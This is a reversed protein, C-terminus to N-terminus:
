GEQAEESFRALRRITEGIEAATTSPNIACIRLAPRGHLATSMVLAYGDVRMLDVTRATIADIEAPSRTGDGRWRFTIVGMQSPTVVEWRADAELLRQAEDAMDFGVQVARRFAAMGFTRMSLWLKLAKFSRTLQPGLEMFNVEGQIHRVVDALYDAHDDDELRFATRLTRADRVLLSGLEYPQFLWKHPDLTISDALEIGRLASRGRETIVAAGGYAGDVHLWLGERRCFAALEPLPDVAGTNTTGGNAVVCFPRRGAAKDERVMAELSPLSLRLAADTPVERRQERRFGILRVGKFLSSHTQDSCYLVGREDPGGLVNERAAAVACLNAMSGGSVLIGGGEAPLGCLEKLWDLVVLEVQSCTSSALWHGMFINHASTLFDATVSVFNTPSPVFSYFRPHDAHLPPGFVNAELFAILAHPDEGHEPLPTRILAETAARSPMPTAVPQQPLNEFHRVAVEVAHHGLARMADGSLSLPSPM